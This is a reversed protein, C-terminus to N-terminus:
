FFLYRKTEFLSQLYVAAARDCFIEREHSNQLKAARILAQHSKHEAHFYEGQLFAKEADELSSNLKIGAGMNFKM